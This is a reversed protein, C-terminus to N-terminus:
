GTSVENRPSNLLFYFRAPNLHTLGFMHALVSSSLSRDYRIAVALLLLRGTLTM